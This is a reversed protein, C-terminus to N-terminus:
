ARHFSQKRPTCDNDHDYKEAMEDECSWSWCERCDDKYTTCNQTYNDRLSERWEGAGKEVVVCLFDTYVIM